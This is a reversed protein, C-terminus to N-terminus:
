ILLVGGTSVDSEAILQCPAEVPTLTLLSTVTVAIEPREAAPNEWCHSSSSAINKMHSQRTGDLTSVKSM